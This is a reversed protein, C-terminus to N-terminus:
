QGGSELKSPEDGQISLFWWSQLSTTRACVMTELHLKFAPM